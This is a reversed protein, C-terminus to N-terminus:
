SIDQLIKKRTEKVQYEKPMCFKTAATKVEPLNETIIDKITWEEQPNEKQNELVGIIKLNNRNLKDFDDIRMKKCEKHVKEM